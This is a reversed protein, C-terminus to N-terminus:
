LEVRIPVEPLSLMVHLLKRLPDELYTAAEPLTNGGLEKSLFATLRRNTLRRCRCWFFVDQGVSKGCRSEDFVRCGAGWASLNMAAPRRPTPKVRELAMQWGRMSGLRTNFDEDRDAMLNSRRWRKSVM